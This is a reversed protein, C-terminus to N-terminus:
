GWPIMDHSIHVTGLFCQGPRINRLKWSLELCLNDLEAAWSLNPADCRDKLEHAFHGAGCLALMGAILALCGAARVALVTRASPQTGLAPTKDNRDPGRDPERTSTDM